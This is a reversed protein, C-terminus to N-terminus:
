GVVSSARTPSGLPSAISILLREVTRVRGIGVLKIAGNGGADESTQALTITIDGTADKFEKCSSQDIDARDFSQVRRPQRRVILLRRNTLAYVTTKASIYAGLPVMLIAAAIIWFVALTLGMGITEAPLSSAPHSMPGKLWQATLIAAFSACPIGFLLFPYTQLAIRLPNPKGLWLLSEDKDLEAEITDRAQRNFFMHTARRTFGLSQLTLSFLKGAILRTGVLGFDV